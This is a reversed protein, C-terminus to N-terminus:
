CIKLQMKLHYLELNKRIAYFILPNRWSNLLKIGNDKLILLMQFLLKKMAHEM